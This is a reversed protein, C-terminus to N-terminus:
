YTVTRCVRVHRPGHREVHCVTRSPHRFAPGTHTRTVTRTEVVRTQASAAIPALATLAFLGAIALSLIKM